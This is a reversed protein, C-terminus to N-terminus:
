RRKFQSSMRFDEAVMGDREITSVDNSEEAQNEQLVANKDHAPTKPTVKSSSTLPFDLAIPVTDQLSRGHKGLSELMVMMM